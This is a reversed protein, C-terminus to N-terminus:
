SLFYEGDVLFLITLLSCAYTIRKDFAKPFYLSTVKSFGAAVFKKKAKENPFSWHQLYYSDVERVAADVQPHCISNFISPPPDLPTAKLGKSGNLGGNSVGNTGVRVENKSITIFGTDIGNSVKNNVENSVSPM